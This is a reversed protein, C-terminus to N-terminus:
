FLTTVMAVSLSAVGAGFVCWDVFSSGLEDNWIKKSITQM